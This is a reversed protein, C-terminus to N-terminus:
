CGEKKKRRPGPAQGAPITPAEVKPLEPTELVAAGAAGARPAGGFFKAVAAARAFRTRERPDADAPLAPFLVEEKWQELGGLLTYAGPYGKARLLMWAQAAHIGGDSYLVVRENRLLPADTLGALPVNEATPIQYAAYATEDRLDILRYDSRGAIIWGALEDPTVHDDERAIATMLENEHLSLTRGPHVSAFLAGAGLVLALLALRRNRGLRARWALM